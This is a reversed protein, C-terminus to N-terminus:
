VRSLHKWLQGLQKMTAKWLPLVVCWPACKARFGIMIVYVLVSVKVGDIRPLVLKVEGKEEADCKSDEENRCKSDLQKYLDATKLIGEECTVGVLLVILLSVQGFSALMRRIIGSRFGRWELCVIKHDPIIYIVPKWANLFMFVFSKNTRSTVPVRMSCTVHRAPLATVLLSRWVRKGHSCGNKNQHFFIKKLIKRGSNRTVISHWPMVNKKLRKKMKRSAFDIPFSWQFFQVRKWLISTKNGSYRWFIELISGYWSFCKWIISNSLVKFIPNEMRKRCYKWFIEM